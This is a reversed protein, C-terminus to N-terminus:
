IRSEPPRLEDDDDADDDDDAVDDDDDHHDDDDDGALYDIRRLFLGKFAEALAKVSRQWCVLDASQSRIM